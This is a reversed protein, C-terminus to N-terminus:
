SNNKGGEQFDTWCSSSAAIELPSTSNGSVEIAAAAECSSKLKQQTM